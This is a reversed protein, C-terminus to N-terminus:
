SVSKVIKTISRVFSAREKEPLASLMQECNLLNQRQIAAQLSLGKETLFIAVARGKLAKQDRRVLGRKQLRDIISQTTTPSVGLHAGVSKAPAGPKAALFALTEADHPSYSAKGKATPNQRESM